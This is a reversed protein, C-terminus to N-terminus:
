EFRFKCCGLDLCNGRAGPTKSFDGAVRCEVHKGDRETELIGAERLIRIHKSVNYQTAGLREVLGGVTLPEVLLERVIRWRTEDALAKLMPICQATAM